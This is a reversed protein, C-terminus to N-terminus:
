TMLYTNHEKNPICTAGGYKFILAGNYTSTDKAVIDCKAILLFYLGKLDSMIEYNAQGKAIVVDRDRIWTEVESPLWALHGNGDTWPNVTLFEINPIDALGVQKVDEMTADNIIPLEKVVVTIKRLPYLERITELLLKDFVIEGANDAFLLLSSAKRLSMEFSNYHNIAFDTKMVHQITEHINFHEKAGFDMINGAVALKCATLLPEESHQLYKQLEPYIQLVETNSRRKVEKYPDIIGTTRHIVQYMGRTMTMPDTDWATKALHAMVQRLVQEHLTRDETILNMIRLAQRQHCLICDIHVKM